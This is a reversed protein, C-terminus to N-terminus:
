RGRWARALWYMMMVGLEVHRTIREDEIWGGEWVWCEQTLRGTEPSDWVFLERRYLGTRFAPGIPAIPKTTMTSLREPLAVLYYDGAHDIQELHLPGGFCTPMSPHYCILPFITFKTALVVWNRVGRGIPM